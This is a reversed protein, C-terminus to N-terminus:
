PAPKVPPPTWSGDLISPPTARPWYLRLVLDFKGKPAPLWNAEKDKGPSEAQLYMDVSGDPNVTLKDRQALEYRNIPNPAFFFDTDYMTLSWFAEAPPLQGKDFHVVYNRRAGDYADGDADKQSLPYTADQPRNWGPGLLNAMGRLLYDQGFVGVGKTFYLWGNTTKKQKLHRAMEILALKPVLKVVERDMFDLKSPDFDQGPVLGIRAMQAVMPADAATPPNTKMLQALREFYAYVDLGDVQKRVATKMDVGPDVVGPPPTYPKGYASLPVLTFKDQLAHVADYDEPTGSSYIRGLVWVLGTPSKVETVGPPLAGSWGPGTIAYTQAKSGTTAPSAVKFVDSWGDLIPVIYYRAGMDPIGLIWPEKSVDLWAETYLTDANPAACCHNDVAPYTRMKIMQGVPAHDADPAAVNTQQQRVTDFTVLPYGYIYAETAIRIAEVAGLWPTEEAAAAGSFTAMAGFCLVAGVRGIAKM